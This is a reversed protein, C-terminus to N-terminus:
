VHARRDIVFLQGCGHTHVWYERLGARPNPSHYLYTAWQADTATRPDPRSVVPGRATFEIEDRLGCWPCPIHLM